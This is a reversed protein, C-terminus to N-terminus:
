LIVVSGGGLTHLWGIFYEGHRRAARVSSSAFPATLFYFLTHQLVDLFSFFLFFGSCFVHWFSSTSRGRDAPPRLLPSSRAARPRRRQVFSHRREASSSKATNTSLTSADMM